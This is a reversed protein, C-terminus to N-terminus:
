DNNKEKYAQEALFQAVDKVLAFKGRRHAIEFTHIPFVDRLIAQKVADVSRYNLARHLQKLTLITSGHLKLLDAELANALAQKEIETL